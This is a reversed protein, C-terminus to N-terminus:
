PNNQSPRPSSLQPGRQPDLSGFLAHAIQRGLVAPPAGASASFSGGDLGDVASGQWGTPVGRDVALQTLESELASQLMAAQRSDLSFGDLVLREIHLDLPSHGPTTRPSNM